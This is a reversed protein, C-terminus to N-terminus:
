PFGAPRAGSPVEGSAVLRPAQIKGLLRIFAELLRDDYNASDGKMLLLAKYPTGADQYTRQTTIADYCDAIACIRGFTSIGGGALRNPYGSGTLREHHQLVIALSDRSIAGNAELIRGGEIVHSKVIEFEADNLRGPKNLIEPPVSSKGVDHLIAGAGLSQVEARGMRMSVGIGASLVAVNVSHTYTYQDYSSLTILDFLVDPNNLICDTLDSVIKMGKKINEGSRPDELLDKVITKSKEKIAVAQIKQKESPTSAAGAMESIVADLYKQYRPIDENRIVVDGRIASLGGPITGFGNDLTEVVPVLRLDTLRYIGFDVRRGQVLFSRDVQYYKQKHEVYERVTVPDEPDAPVEESTRHLYRDLELADRADVYVENVGRRVLDMREEPGFPHGCSYVKSFVNGENVFIDFPLRTGVALGEAPFAKRSGYVFVKYAM